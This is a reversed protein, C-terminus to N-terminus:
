QLLLPAIDETESTERAKRNCSHNIKSLFGTIKGVSFRGLQREVRASMEPTIPKLFVAIAKILNVCTVMVEAAKEKSTKILEWPKSDQYYKNGLSGLAHVKEVVSKFECRDYYGSIENAAEDVITAVAEDWHVDPVRKEFYRDCFVFTRPHLNGIKNALTTNVKNILEDGNLDIDATNPM